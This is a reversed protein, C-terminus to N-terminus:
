FSVFPFSFSLLPSMGTVIVTKSTLDLNATVDEATSNSSFGSPGVTGLLYSATTGMEALFELNFILFKFV